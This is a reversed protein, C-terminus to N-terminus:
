HDATGQRGTRGNPAQGTTKRAIAARALAHSALPLTVALLFLLLLARLWWAGGGHLMATGLAILALALTAAKTAAHQRSLADPLRLVGFCAVALALAGAFILGGGILASM